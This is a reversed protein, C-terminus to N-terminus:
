ISKKPVEKRATTGTNQCEQLEKVDFIQKKAVVEPMEKIIKPPLPTTRQSRPQTTRPKKM